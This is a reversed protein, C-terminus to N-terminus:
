GDTNQTGPFTKLAEPAKFGTNASPKNERQSSVPTEADSLCKREETADFRVTKKFIIKNNLQGLHTAERQGGQACVCSSWLRADSAAHRSARAWSQEGCAKGNAGPGM